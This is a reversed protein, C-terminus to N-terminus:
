ALRHQSASVANRAEAILQEVAYQQEADLTIANSRSQQQADPNMIALTVGAAQETTEAQQQPSESGCGTVVLLCLSIGFIRM